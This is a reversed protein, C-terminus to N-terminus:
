ARSPSESSSILSANLNNSM